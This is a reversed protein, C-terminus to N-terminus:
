ISTDLKGGLTINLDVTQGQKIELNSVFTQKQQGDIFFSCVVFKFTRRFIVMENGNPPLCPKSLV